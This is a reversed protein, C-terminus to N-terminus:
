TSPRRRSPITACSSRGTPGEVLLTEDEAGLDDGWQIASGRQQLTAVADTYDIRPFPASRKSSRRERELDTLEQRRRELVREMLYVFLSEQLRMNEASDAFAVEPEIM